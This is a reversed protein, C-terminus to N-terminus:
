DVGGDDSSGFRKRRERQEVRERVLGRLGKFSFSRLLSEERPTKRRRRFPDVLFVGAAVSLALIGVFLVAPWGKSIPPRYSPDPALLLLVIATLGSAAGAALVSAVVVVFGLPNEKRRIGNVTFYGVWGSRIGDIASRFWSVSLVICFFAVALLTTM